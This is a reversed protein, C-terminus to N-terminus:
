RYLGKIAGWSREEFGPDVSVADCGVGFAGIQGCAGSHPLACPSNGQLTYDGNTIDCFLPDASINGNLNQQGAMCGVWDGGANGFIDCCVTTITNSAFCKTASGVSSFAIISNRIEMTPTGFEGIDVAGGGNGASQNNVLTCSEITIDGIGDSSIGAGSYDSVNNDFTCERIRASGVSYIGGGRYQTVNSRLRCQEVAGEDMTIAGGRGSVPFLTSDEEFVSGYVSLVSSTSFVAGGSYSAFNRLFASEVISVASGSSALIAGGTTYNNGKEGPARNAEFVTDDITVTSNEARLGGGGTGRNEAFHSDSIVLDSDRCYIGAGEGPSAINRAFLCRELLVTSAQTIKIGVGSLDSGDLDDIRHLEEFACDRVSVHSGIINVGRQRAGSARTIRIGEIACGFGLNTCRFATLEASLTITVCDHFGTASRIVIGDKLIAGATYSGCAVEVTDGFAALDVGAQITPADIPVHITTAHAAFALLTTSSTASLIRVCFHLRLRSRLSLNM